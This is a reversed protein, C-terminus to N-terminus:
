MRRADSVLWALSVRFYVTHEIDDYWRYLCRFVWKQLVIRAGEAIIYFDALGHVIVSRKSKEIVNPLVTFAPPLSADRTPFVDADTDTCLTWNIKTPAHIAEKVDERDFYLPSVQTQFFSGRTLSHEVWAVGFMLLLPSVPLGVCGVIDAVILICWITGFFLSYHTGWWTSSIIFM